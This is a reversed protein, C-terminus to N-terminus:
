LTRAQLKSIDATALFLTNIKSLLALRNIKLAEDDCM